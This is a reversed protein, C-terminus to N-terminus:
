AGATRVNGEFAQRLAQAVDNMAEKAKDIVASMSFFEHMMGTYHKDVVPVGAERLLTAYAEGDSRLPAVEATFIMAPPLGSLSSARLPSAYPKAADAPDELYYGCFWQM